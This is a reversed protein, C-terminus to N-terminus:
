KEQGLNKKIQKKYNKNMFYGLLKKVMSIMLLMHGHFLIKLKVSYLFKMLGIRLINNLLFTKTNQYELIIMVLKFNLIKIM